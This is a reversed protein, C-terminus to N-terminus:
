FPPGVLNGDRVGITKAGYQPLEILTPPGHMTIRAGKGAYPADLLGITLNGGKVLIYNAQTHTTHKPPTTPNHAGKVM